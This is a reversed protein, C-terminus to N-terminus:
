ENPVESNILSCWKEHKDRHEPCFEHECRKCFDDRAEDIRYWYHCIRCAAALKRKRLDKLLRKRGKRRDALVRRAELRKEAMIRAEAAEPEPRKCTYFHDVICVGCYSEYHQCLDQPTRKRPLYLNGCGDCSFIEEAKELEKILHTYRIPNYLTKNSPPTDPVQPDLIVLVQDRSPSEDRTCHQSRRQGLRNSHTHAYPHQSQSANTAHLLHNAL